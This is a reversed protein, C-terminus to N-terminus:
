WTSSCASPDWGTADAQAKFHTSTVFPQQLYMPDEVIGTVVLWRDGNRQQVVDFHETLVANESYPVGNKRLYGALLRSTVVKLSGSRPPAPPGGGRAPPPVV